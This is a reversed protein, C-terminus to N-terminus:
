YHLAKEKLEYVLDDKDMYVRKLSSGELIQLKGRMVEASAEDYHSIHVIIYGVGIRALRDLAQRHPFLKLEEKLFDYGPPTRNSTGNVLRKWHLTSYYMYEANLSNNGEPSMPFEVVPADPASNLWCYVPPVSKENPFCGGKLPISIGEAVICLSLLIFCLNRIRNSLRLRYHAVVFGSLVAMGLLAFEMMRNPYRLSKFGPINHYLFSYPMTVTNGFVETSPGLSLVSAGAIMILFFTFDRAEFGRIRFRCWVCLVSFLVPIFGVLLTKNFPPNGSTHLTRGYCINERSAEIFSHVGPSQSRVFDMSWQSEGKTLTINDYLPWLVMFSVVLCMALGVIFRANIQRSLLLWIVFVGLFFTFFIGHYGSSLANLLFLLTFFPWYIIKRRDVILYLLLFQLPIWMMALTQIHGVQAFRFPNFSFILGSVFAAYLDGTLYYVLLFTFFASLVFTLLFFINLTMILERTVLYIPYAVLAVGLLPDSYATARTNPYFFNGNWFTSFDLSAFHRFDWGLTWLINCPDGYGGPLFMHINLPM